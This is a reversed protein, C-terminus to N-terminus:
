LLDNGTVFSLAAAVGERDPITNLFDANELQAIFQRQARPKKSDLGIHEEFAGRSWIWVDNHKFEDLFSHIIEAGDTESAALVFGQEATGLDSKKPFGDNSVELKGQAVLRTCVSRMENLREDTIGVIGHGAIERFIYDLDAIVKAQFGIAKLVKSAKILGGSGDLKIIGVRSESLSKGSLTRYIEPLILQETRGEVLFVKDCFLFEKSNSLEFIVDAQQEADAIIDDVNALRELARCGDQNNRRVILTHAADSPDIMEGSHTTFAVQFGNGALAKLGSKVVAIAQPHLYLEPEDLLLLITRGAKEGTGRKMAALANILAIQMARQVGHGMSDVSEFGQDYRSEAVRITAKKLVDDIEPMPIHTKAIIGPFLAALYEDILKDVKVLEDDKTEGSVSLCKSLDSLAETIAGAYSDRVPDIIQKVLKGITTTATNKAVDDGANEMARVPIVEPFMAALAPPIGTPAKIWENTEVTDFVELKFKNPPQKPQLQTRRFLISGDQLYPNIKKRHDEGLGDLVDDTIGEVKACMVIASDTSNFDQASMSFPSVIWEMAALITSKGGNNYGVIPTYNSFYFKSDKISKYNQVTIESIRHM